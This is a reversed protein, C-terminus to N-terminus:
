MSLSMANGDIFLLMSSCIQLHLDTESCTKLNGFGTEGNGSSNVIIMFTVGM